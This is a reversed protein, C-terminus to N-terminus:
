QEVLERIRHDDVPADWNWGSCTSGPITAALRAALKAVADEVSPGAFQMAVLAVSRHQSVSFLSASMEFSNEDVQNRPGRMASRGMGSGGGAGGGAFGSTGGAGSRSTMPGGGGSIASTDPKSGGGKVVHGAVTVILILDGTAAPGFQDLLEDGVGNARAYDDIAQSLDPKSALLPAGYAPTCRGGLPASLGQGISDWADPSMRGDKFIGFVSVTHRGQSFGPATRTTFQTDGSCGCLAGAIPLLVALSLAAACAKVTSRLTPPM